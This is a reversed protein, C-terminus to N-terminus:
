EPRMFLIMIFVPKILNELWLKSTTSSNAKRELLAMLDMNSDVHEVTGHWVEETVMRIARTNQPFKKGTFMRTVGGFAAKMVEELGSNAMLMGVCGVFSMLMHIGGLRPIFNPFREPHVWMVNVVVRYLQQDATFVTFVHGSQRTLKQAEVMATMMTTPDSPVMDILPTYM